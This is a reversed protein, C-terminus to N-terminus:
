FLERERECVCLWVHVCLHTSVCAMQKIADDRVDADLQAAASLAEISADFLGLRRLIVGRYTDLTRRRTPSHTLLYYTQTVCTCM